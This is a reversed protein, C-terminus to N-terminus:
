SPGSRKPSAESTAIAQGDPHTAHWAVGPHNQEAALRRRAAAETIREHGSLRERREAEARLAHARVAAIDKIGVPPQVPGAKEILRALDSDLFTTAALRADQWTLRAQWGRDRQGHTRLEELERRCRAHYAEFTEPQRGSRDAM